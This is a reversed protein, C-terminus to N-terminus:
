REDLYVINLSAITVLFVPITTEHRHVTPCLIRVTWLGVGCEVDECGSVSYTVRGISRSAHMTNVHLDIVVPLSGRVAARISSAVIVREHPLGVSEQRLEIDLSEYEPVLVTDVLISM